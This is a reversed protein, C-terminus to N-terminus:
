HAPSLRHALRLVLQVRDRIGLKEFVAGLHAKVTRETIHLQEAVERNSQGAAVARAVQLERESLMSLDVQHEVPSPHRGILERTAAMLRQVLDPGVWLGGLLVVQGVERLLEPVAMLHCYGRAGANIARLGEAEYPVPSLVVVRCEPQLRNLVSVKDLWDSITVAVWVTDGAQVRQQLSTWNSWQGQPFALLWREPPTVPPQSATQVLFHHCSM